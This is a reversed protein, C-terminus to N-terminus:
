NVTVTYIPDFINTGVCINEKAEEEEKEAQRVREDWCCPCLPEGEDTFYADDTYIRSGCDVCDCIDESPAVCSSCLVMSETGEDYFDKNCGCNMCENEGSYNIDFVEGESDLYSLHKYNETFCNSIYCWHRTCGFDCYMTADDTNFRIYQNLDADDSDSIRIFDSYYKGEGNAYIGNKFVTGYIEECKDKLVRLAIKTLEEHQYPYAKVSCIFSSPDVLILTRWRKAPYSCEEDFSKRWYIKDSSNLYVVIAYPSNMMEVTGARYCGSGSTWSMCSSFTGDSMTIYDMPHISFTLDGSMTKDNLLRSHELNWENYINSLNFFDALKKMARSYKIGKPIVLSEPGPIDKLFDFDERKLTFSEGSFINEYISDSANMFGWLEFLPNSFSIADFPFNFRKRCINEIQKYLSTRRLVNFDIENIMKKVKVPISFRLEDGFLDALSHKNQIWFRLLYSDDATSRSYDFSHEQEGEYNTDYINIYSRFTELEDESLRDFLSIM